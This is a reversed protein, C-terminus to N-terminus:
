ELAYFSMFLVFAFALAGFILLNKQKPTLRNVGLGFSLNQQFGSPADIAGIDVFVNRAAGCVPCRWQSPLEEFRTGAPINQTSDGKNPEYVYGCSRCEFRSPAQEALTREDTPDTM